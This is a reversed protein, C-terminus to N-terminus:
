LTTRWDGVFGRTVWLMGRRGAELVGKKAWKYLLINPINELLTYKELLALSENQDLAVCNVNIVNPIYSEIHNKALGKSKITVKAGYCTRFMM